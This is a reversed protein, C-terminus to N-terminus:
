NISCRTSNIRHSEAASHALLYKLESGTLLQAAHLRFPSHALFGAHISGFQLALQKEHLLVMLYTINALKQKKKRGSAPLITYADQRRRKLTHLRLNHLQM